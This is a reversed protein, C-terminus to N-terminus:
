REFLCFIEFRKNSHDQHIGHIMHRRSHAQQLIYQMHIAPSYDSTVKALIM